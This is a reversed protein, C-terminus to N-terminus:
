YKELCKIKKVFTGAPTSLKHIGYPKSITKICASKWDQHFIDKSHIYHVEACRKCRPAFYGKSVWTVYKGFINKTQKGCDICTHASTFELSAILDRIEEIEVTNVYVRLRGWKEKTDSIRFYSKVEPHQELFDELKCLFLKWIDQWGTNDWVNKWDEIKIREM